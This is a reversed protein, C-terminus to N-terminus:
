HERSKTRDLIRIMTPFLPRHTKHLGQVIHEFINALNVGGHILENKGWSETVIVDHM